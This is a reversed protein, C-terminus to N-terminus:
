GGIASSTISRLLDQMLFQQLDQMLFQQCVIIFGNSNKTENELLEKSQVSLKSDKTIFM